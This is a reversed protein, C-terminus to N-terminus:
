LLNIIDDLSAITFDQDFDTFFTFIDDVEDHEESSYSDNNNVVSIFNGDRDNSPFNRIEDKCPSEICEKKNSYFKQLNALIINDYSSFSQRKRKASPEQYKSDSSEKQRNCELISIKDNPYKNSFLGLADSNESYLMSVKSMKNLYNSRYRGKLSKISKISPIEHDTGVREDRLVQCTKDICRDDVVM